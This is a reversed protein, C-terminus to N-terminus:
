LSVSVLEAFDRYVGRLGLVLSPRFGKWGLLLQALPQGPDCPRETVLRRCECLRPAVEAAATAIPALQADALGARCVM